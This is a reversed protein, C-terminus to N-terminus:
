MLGLEKCKQIHKEYTENYYYNLEKDTVFFYYDTDEPYLAAIICEEGPNSIAGAPLFSCKYTNYLEKYREAGDGFYPVIYDNVYAITVDCQLKGYDPSKLRNHLVSSIKPNEDSFGAEEQIISALTIIEDLTFGLEKAREYYEDKLKKDTNKLFRSLAKEASENKYFMYTDPFIYGELPFAKNQPDIGSIFKYLGKLKETNQVENLFDEASCVGKEELKNAIQVATYGEPITVTVTPDETTSMESSAKLTTNDFFSDSCGFLTFIFVFLIVATFLKKM